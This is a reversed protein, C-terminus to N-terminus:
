SRNAKGGCTRPAAPRCMRKAMSFAAALAAKANGTNFISLDGGMSATAALPATQEPLTDSVNVPGSPFSQWNRGKPRFQNKRSNGTARRSRHSRIPGRRNASADGPPLHNKGLERRLRLSHLLPCARNRWGIPESQRPSEARSSNFAAKSRVQPATSEIEAKASQGTGAGSRGSHRWAPRQGGVRLGTAQSTM